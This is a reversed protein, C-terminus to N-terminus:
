DEKKSNSSGEEEVGRGEGCGGVDIYITYAHLKAFVFSVFKRHSSSCSKSPQCLLSCEFKGGAFMCPHLCLM